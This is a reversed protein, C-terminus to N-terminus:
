LIEKESHARNFSKTMAIKNTNTATKASKAFIYGNERGISSTGHLLQSM